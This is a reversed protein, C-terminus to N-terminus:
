IKEIKSWDFSVKPIKLKNLIFVKLGFPVLTPHLVNRGIKHRTGKIICETGLIYSIKCNADYKKRPQELLFIGFFILHCRFYPSTFLTVIKHISIGKDDKAPYAKKKHAFPM